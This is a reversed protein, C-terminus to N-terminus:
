CVPHAEAMCDDSCWVYEEHGHYGNNACTCRLEKGPVIAQACIDCRHEEFDQNWSPEEIM